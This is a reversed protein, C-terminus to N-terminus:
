GGDADEGKQIEVDPWDEPTARFALYCANPHGTNFICNQCDKQASAYDRLVNYAILALEPTIDLKKM